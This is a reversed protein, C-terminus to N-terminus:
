TCTYLVYQTQRHLLALSIPIARCAMFFCEELIYLSRELGLM